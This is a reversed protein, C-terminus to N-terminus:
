KEIVVKSTKGNRVTAVATRSFRMFQTVKVQVDGAPISEAVFEGNEDTMVEFPKWPDPKEGIFQAFLSELWTPYYSIECKTFAFDDQEKPLFDISGRLTGCKKIEIDGLNLDSEAVVIDIQYTTPICGDIELSYRGPLANELEFNGHADVEAEQTGMAVRQSTVGIIDTTPIEVPIVKVRIRNERVQEKEVAGADIRGRISFGEPFAPRVILQDHTSRSSVSLHTEWFAFGPAKAGVWIEKCNQFEETSDFFLVLERNESDIKKTVCEFSLPDENQDSCRGASLEMGDRVFERPLEVKLRPKPSMTISIEHTGTIALEASLHKDESFRIKKKSSLNLGHFEFNGQEDTMTSNREFWSDRELSVDVDKLPQGFPNRVTGRLSDGPELEIVVGETKEGNKFRKESIPRFLPHKVNFGCEEDLCQLHFSGDKRSIVKRSDDAYSIPHGFAVPTLVVNPVPQRTDAHVVIGSVSQGRKVQVVQSRNLDTSRVVLRVNDNSCHIYDAHLQLSISCSIPADIVMSGDEDIEFGRVTPAIYKGSQNLIEYSVRLNTLFERTVKDQFRITYPIREKWPYVFSKSRIWRDNVEDRLCEGDIQFIMHSYSLGLANCHIEGDIIEYTGRSENREYYDGNDCFEIRQFDDEEDVFVGVIRKEDTSQAIAPSGVFLQLLMFFLYM